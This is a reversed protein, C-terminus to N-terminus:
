KGCRGNTRLRKVQEDSLFHEAKSLVGQADVVVHSLHMEVIKRLRQHLTGDECLIDQVIARIFFMTAVMAETFLTAKNSFYYYVTAKTVGAESAVRELSVGEYGAEMFLRAAVQLIQQATSEEGADQKPRGPSRKM